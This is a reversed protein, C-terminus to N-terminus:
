DLGTVQLLAIRTEVDAPVAIEQARPTTTSARRTRCPHTNAVDVTYATHPRYDAHARHLVVVKASEADREGLMARATKEVEAEYIAAVTQAISPIPRVV